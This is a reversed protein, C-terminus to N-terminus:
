HLPPKLLVTTMKGCNPCQVDLVPPVFSKKWITTKDDIPLGIPQHCHVCTQGEFPEPNMMEEGM